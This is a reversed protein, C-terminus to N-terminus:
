GLRSMFYLGVFGPHTVWKSVIERSLKVYRSNADHAVMFDIREKCSGRLVKNDWRNPYEEKRRIEVEEHVGGSLVKKWYADLEADEAKSQGDTGEIYISFRNPSADVMFDFRNPSCNRLARFLSEDVIGPVKEHLRMAMDLAYQSNLFNTTGRGFAEKMKSQVDRVSSHFAAYKWSIPYLNESRSLRVM